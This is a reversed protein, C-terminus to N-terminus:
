VVTRKIRAKALASIERFQQRHYPLPILIHTPYKRGDSMKVTADKAHLPYHHLFLRQREECSARFGTATRNSTPLHRVEMM